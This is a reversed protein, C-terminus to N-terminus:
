GSFRGVSCDETPCEYVKECGPSDDSAGSGVHKAADGCRPCRRTM